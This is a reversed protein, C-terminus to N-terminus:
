AGTIEGLVRNAILLQQALAHEAAPNCARGNMLRSFSAPGLPVTDM